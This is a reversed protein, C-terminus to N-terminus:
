KRIPVTKGAAPHDAGNKGTEPFPSGQISALEKIADFDDKSIRRWAYANRVGALIAEWSEKEKPSENPNTRLLQSRFFQARLYRRLLQLAAFISLSAACASLLGIINLGPAQRSKYFKVAGPHLEYYFGREPDVQSTQTLLPFERILKGSAADLAQVVRYAEGDSLSTSCVLIERSAITTIQKSPFAVRSPYAGPTITTSEFVPRSAVIGAARDVSLLDYAGENAIDIMVKADLGVLFFAADVQHSELERKAEAWGGDGGVVTFDKGEKLGYHNLVDESVTRTGSEPPGLFLTKGELDAVSSFKSDRRVVIQLPSIYLRALARIDTTPQIGDITFALQAVGDRLLTINQTSGDSEENRVFNPQHFQENLTESLLVGLDFYLGGQRGSALVYHDRNKLEQYSLFLYIVVPALALLTVATWLVHKPPPGLVM